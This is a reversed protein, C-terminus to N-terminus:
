PLSAEYIERQTQAMQALRATEASLRIIEPNRSGVTAMTLSMGLATAEAVDATTRDAVPTAILVSLKNHLVELSTILEAEAERQAAEAALRAIRALIESETPIVAEETATFPRPGFGVDITRAVPDVLMEAGNGPHPITFPETSDLELM